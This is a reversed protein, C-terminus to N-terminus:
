YQEREPALHGAREVLEVVIVGERSADQRAPFPKQAPM